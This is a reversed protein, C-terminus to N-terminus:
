WGQYCYEISITTEKTAGSVPVNMPDHPLVDFGYDGFEVGPDDSKLVVGKIPVESTVGVSKLDNSMGIGVRNKPDKMHVYKLPQPWDVCRALLRRNKNFLYVAVIINRDEAKSWSIPPTKIETTRNPLLEVDLPKHIIRQCHALDWALILIKVSAADATNLNCAWVELTKAPEEPDLTTEHQFREDGPLDCRIVGVSLEAMERKIAYYALKNRGYYDRISWSTGPWVDNLQWVLAGGCNREYDGKWQRKWLRYATSLCDAQMLQTCYIYYELPGFSYRMNEVLYLALRREHGTAKNHFDLTASQPYADKDSRGDPLFAAITRIDPFAQMGFESVFRGVLKGWDQYREQTGHWVNWQHIDGVTPDAASKGGWPSGFHYPIQPILEKCADALIKEYIYRAPFDTKLWSEPDKDNPDYTLGEEEAIQYDENNGAWIVISPHHRLLKVNERAELDVSNLFEPWCPYNGCAFMFDQWVLIGLDDCADYFADQEYIGGGWVRIMNQMGDVASKVWDYYKEDTIRPIFNDAPIWNSGGCFIPCNNIKFFFSQGSEYLLPEQVLEVKRLGINKSISHLGVEANLITATLTYLSQTREGVHAPWWLRPRHIKFVAQQIHTPDKIDLESSGVVKESSREGLELRIKSASGEITANVTVVANELTRDFHVDAWLDSIRSEYLELTM